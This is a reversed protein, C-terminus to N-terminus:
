EIIARIIQKNTFLFLQNALFLIKKVKNQYNAPLNIKKTYDKYLHEKSIQYTDTFWVFEDQFCLYTVNKCIIKRRFNGMNDFILIGSNKDVVFLQNQYETLFVMDYQLNGLLLDLPTKLIVKETQMDIKKLSFDADDILWIQNDSSPAVLRAFGVEQSPLPSTKLLTLFRDILSYEQFDISYAFIQLPNRAEVLSFNTNKEPSYTTSIIQLLSDCRFILGKSNSFYINQYTDVSIQQTEIQLSDICKIQQAVALSSLFLSFFCAYVFSFFSQKTYIHM